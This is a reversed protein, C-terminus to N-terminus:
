HSEGELGQGHCYELVDRAERNLFDARQNIIELDRANQVDRTFREIFAWLAAEVFASRTEERQGACKDVAKLLEESLAICTWVKM